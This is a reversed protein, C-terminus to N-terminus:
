AKLAENLVLLAQTRNSVGLKRFIATMHAKVTAESIGMEYAIQKNLLGEGLYDTVRRQAPTLTTLRQTPSDATDTDSQTAEPFVEGGSLIIAVAEAITEGSNNKPMFGKAGLARARAFLPPDDHSSVIMVPVDPASAQIRALSELGSADGLELDLLIMDPATDRISQLADTLSKATRVHDGTYGAVALNACLADRMLPHDDIVLLTAKGRDPESM